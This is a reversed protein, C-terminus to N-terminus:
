SPPFSAIEDATLPRYQGPQLASDLVIAGIQSRHLATVRNGVAAFMRKVQHYRGETICLEVHQDDLRSLQAPHTPQTEGNLLIGQELQPDATLPLPEALTVQYVKPAKNRPATLRHSWHGDDTLLVLGTTDQDLRGAFHLRDTQPHDLLRLASPHHNDQHSCVYGLPKNLMLYVPGSPAISVGDLSVQQTPLLQQQPDMAPVGDM